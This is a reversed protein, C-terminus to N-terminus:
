ICLFFPTLSLIPKGSSSKLIISHQHKKVKYLKLKVLHIYMYMYYTWCGLRFIYTLVKVTTSLRTVWQLSISLFLCLSLTCHVRLSFNKETLCLMEMMFASSCRNLLLFCTEALFVYKPKNKEIAIRSTIWFKNLWIAILDALLVQHPYQYSSRYIKSCICLQSYFPEFSTAAKICIPYM